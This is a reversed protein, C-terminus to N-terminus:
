RCPLPVVRGHQADRVGELLGDPAERPRRGRATPLWDHVAHVVEAAGVPQAGHGTGALSGTNRASQSFAANPMNEM